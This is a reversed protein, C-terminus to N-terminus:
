LRNTKHKEFLNHILLARKLKTKADEKAKPDNPNDIKNFYNDGAVTGKRPWYKTFNLVEPKLWDLLDVTKKFDSETEGPFGVIIDTAISLKPIERRFTTVIEKFEKVNYQRNMSTLVKDSGAQIPVHLFKLIKPHKYVEVIKPLLQYVHNPNAMGMRVKFKGDLALIKELLEVIDTKIDFGYCGCDQSTLYIKDCGESIAKKAEKIIKDSSYSVLQGRALKGACYTCNGLCGKSIVIKATKDDDRVHPLNLKEEAKKNLLVVREGALTREVVDVAQKFNFNGLLSFNTLRPDEPFSLPFCGGIIIKKTKSIDQIKRFLRAETPTKLSCTNFIILDSDELTTLTYGAETLLGKLVESDAQNATCGFTRIYIRAM